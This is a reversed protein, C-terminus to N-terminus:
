RVRSTFITSYSSLTWSNRIPNNSIQEVFAIWGDLEPRVNRLTPLARLAGYTRNRFPLARAAALIHQSTVVDLSGAAVARSLSWRINVLPVSLPAYTDPHFVIAVEDDNEIRGLCIDEFIRGVGVMGISRCEAARLAGMSAAGYVRSGARIADRIETVSVALSHGFVGDVIGITTVGAAVARPLDGRKIPPLWMADCSRSVGYISPGGFVCIMM